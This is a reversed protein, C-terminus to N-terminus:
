LETISLLENRHLLNRNMINHGKKLKRSINHKLVSTCQNDTFHIKIKNILCKVFLRM